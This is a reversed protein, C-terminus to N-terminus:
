RFRTTKEAKQQGAAVVSFENRQEHRGYIANTKDAQEGGQAHRLARKALSEIIESRPHSNPQRREKTFPDALIVQDKHQKKGHQKPEQPM